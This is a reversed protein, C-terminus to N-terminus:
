RVQVLTIPGELSDVVAHIAQLPRAPAENPFSHPMSSYPTTSLLLTVPFAHQQPYRCREGAEMEELDTAQRNLLYNLEIFFITITNHNTNLM